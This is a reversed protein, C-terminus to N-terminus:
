RWPCRSGPRARTTPASCTLKEAITVSACAPASTRASTVSWGRCWLKAANASAAAARQRVGTQVAVATRRIAPRSRSSPTSSASRRVPPVRNTPQSVTTKVPSQIGSWSSARSAPVWSSGPVRPGATSVVSSVDMGPTKAAPFRTCAASVASTAAAPPRCAARCIAAARRPPGGGRPGRIGTVTAAGSRQIEGLAMRAPPGGGARPCKRSRPSTKRRAARSSTRCPSRTSAAARVRSTGPRGPEGPRRSSPGPRGTRPGPVPRAGNPQRSCQAM